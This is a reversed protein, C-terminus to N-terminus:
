RAVLLKKPLGIKLLHYAEDKYGVYYLNESEDDYFMSVESSNTNIKPGLNIPDSWKKWTDDLRVTYFLDYDGYGSFGNSAFFLLREDDCLFPACEENASNVNKGLNQLFSYTGDKKVKTFHLNLAGQTIDLEM